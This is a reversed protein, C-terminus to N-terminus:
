YYGIIKAITGGYRIMAARQITELTSCMYSGHTILSQTFSRACMTYYMQSVGYHVLHEFLLLAVLRIVAKGYM